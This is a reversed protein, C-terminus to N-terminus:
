GELIAVVRLLREGFNIRQGIHFELPLPANRSQAVSIVVIAWNGRGPPKTILVM